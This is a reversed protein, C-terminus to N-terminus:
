DYTTRMYDPMPIVMSDKKQSENKEWTRICAKWDKIPKGKGQVWGNASYYDIFREADVSNHREECYAKVEELTPPTFRKTKGNNNVKGISVKGINGKGTSDDSLCTDSMQNVDINKLVEPNYFWKIGHKEAVMIRDWTDIVEQNNLADTEKDQISENCSECIVSINDIEHEGGKSIPKNHQITPKRVSAHMPFGCVPCTHGEFARKIKYTFSYPLTSKAYAIKRADKADLKEIEAIEGNLTYSGNEKVSLLAKEEQYNTEVLRDARIYNHIRWHKIVVVGSDFPIIFRKVILLKLDDELAGIMRQIKKPNNIFGEDDARMSLHFYLAQTSLPMDLFADSDIITKAFMRREAM